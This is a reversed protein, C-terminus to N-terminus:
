LPISLIGMNKRHCEERDGGYRLQRQEKVPINNTIVVTSPLFVEHVHHSYVTEALGLLVSVSFVKCKYVYTSLVYTSLVYTSLV